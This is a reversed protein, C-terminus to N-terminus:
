RLPNEMLRSNSMNTSMGNGATSLTVTNMPDTNAEMLTITTEPLMGTLISMLIHTRTVTSMPTFWIVMGTNMPILTHIPTYISM